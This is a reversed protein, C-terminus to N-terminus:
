LEGGVVIMPLVSGFHIPVAWSSLTVSQKHTALKSNMTLGFVITPFSNSEYFIGPLSNRGSDVVATCQTWIHLDESSFVYEGSYDRSPQNNTNYSLNYCISSPTHDSFCQCVQKLNCMTSVDVNHPM